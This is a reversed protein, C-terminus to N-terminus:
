DKMSLLDRIDAESLSTLMTEGPQIVNDILEKKRQQLEYIKEEITGQAILRLVQVVKKQGIRHARGAAQEEIAPNWWLDYLIVTDAGTLNLGTGGAKLSILFLDREGQNFRDAMDVREKSPTEGDLYFPEHGLAGLEKQILKLMSSFQSFILIRQGNQIANEVLELLQILKGSEGEYNELFLSPHCCLQRLRTLGALIKMRSKQYGEAALATATEGQIKELYGLYLKKQEKTLESTHVSEIKDPLEKLVERKLRRLIFPRTLRSIKEHSLANYQKKSPFFGPMIAEFISWLEELSNEIPTGSLAFRHSANISKVAKATQTAQNKIAQAEDLIMTSFAHEQYLESDKRILPYSTIVVDIGSLDKILAAREAKTGNIVKVILNPAFKECESKWNYILSAPSIVLAPDEKEEKQSLLFTISQITKGLGMDDALIGGFHYTALTQLWQFGTNQYDRLTANLAQPLPVDRDEPEKIAQILNRFSKNYKLSNGRELVDDVQLGRYAPLNLHGNKYDTVKLNLEDFLKSVQEFEEGQLPVFTGSPLRVYKKKEVVSQLLHHVDDEAIENFDFSIDLLNGSAEFDVKIKPPSPNNFLMNKVATTMYIDAEKEIFPLLEYLFRFLDDEDDLYLQSGNRLFHAEQIYPLIAKEKEVDRLLIQDSSSTAMDDLDFPSLMIEGYHYELKAILRDDRLDLFLKNKLPVSLIENSLSEDMTLPGLKKLKPVVHALFGDIEEPSIQLRVQSFFPSLKEFTKKQQITLKYFTNGKILLSYEPLFSFQGFEGYHLEYIQENKTLSFSLPTKREIFSFCPFSGEETQFTTVKPRLLALLTDTSAPPLILGRDSGGDSGFNTQFFFTESENLEQFFNLITQDSEEFFQTEPDYTFNKTFPLPTGEKVKKLFTHINKVVYTRSTGVKLEVKLLIPEGWAEQEAKLVYDVKLPMKRLSERPRFNPGDERSFLDILRTAHNPVRGFIPLKLCPYTTPDPDNSLVEHIEFLTAVVHKCEGYKSHAPCDCEHEIGRDSFQIVIDYLHNGEVEAHWANKFKDQVLQVVNGGYYYDLGRYYSPFKFLTMIQEPFGELKSPSPALSSM